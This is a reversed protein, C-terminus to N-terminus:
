RYKPCEIVYIYFLVCHCEFLLINIVIHKIDDFAVEMLKIIAM